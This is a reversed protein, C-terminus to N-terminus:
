GSGAWAQVGCDTITGAITVTVTTTTSTLASCAWVEQRVSGNTVSSGPVVAYTGGGTVSSVTLTSPNLTVGVLVTDGIQATASLTATM